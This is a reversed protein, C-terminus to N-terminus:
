AELQRYTDPEALAAAVRRRWWAWAALAAGALRTLAQNMAERHLANARAIALERLNAPVTM